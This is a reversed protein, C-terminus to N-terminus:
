MRVRSLAHASAEDDPGLRLGVEGLGCKPILRASSPQSQIQDTFHAGRHGAGDFIGLQMVTEALLRFDAADEGPSEGISDKEDHPCVGDHDKRHQVGRPVVTM